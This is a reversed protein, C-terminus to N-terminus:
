IFPFGKDSLANTVEKCADVSAENRLDHGARESYEKAVDFICRWFNQQLTRHQNILNDVLVKNVENECGMINLSSIIENLGNDAQQKIDSTLDKSM